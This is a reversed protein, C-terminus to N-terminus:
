NVCVRDVDKALAEALRAMRCTETRDRQAKRATVAVSGDTATACARPVRPAAESRERGTFGLGVFGPGGSSDAREDSVSWARV